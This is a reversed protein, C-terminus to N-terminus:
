SDQHVKTTITSQVPRVELTEKTLLTPLQTWTVQIAQLQMHHHMRDKDLSIWFQDPDNLMFQLYRHWLKDEMIIPQFMVKKVWIAEELKTQVLRQFLKDMIIIKGAQLLEMYVLNNHNIM